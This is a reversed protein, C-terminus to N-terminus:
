VKNVDGWELKNGSVETAKASAPMAPLDHRQGQKAM